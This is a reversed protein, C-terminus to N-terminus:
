RTNAEDRNFLYNAPLSYKQDKIKKLFGIKITNIKGKNKKSTRQVKPKIGKVFSFRRLLDILFQVNSENDIKVEITQMITAKLDYRRM